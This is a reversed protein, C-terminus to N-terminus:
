GGWAIASRCQWVLESGQEDPAEPMFRRGSTTLFASQRREFWEWSRISRRSWEPTSRISTGAPAPWSRWIPWNPSAAPSATPLSTCVTWRRVTSCRRAGAPRPWAAHQRVGGHREAGVAGPRDALRGTGAAIRGAAGHGRQPRGVRDDVVDRAFSRLPGSPHRAAVSSPRGSRRRGAARRGGMASLPVRVAPRRDGALARRGVGDARSQTGVPLGAALADRDARRGAPQIEGGPSLPCARSCARPCWRRREPFRTDRKRRRLQQAFVELLLSKGSGSPGVLLGLRRHQGVLFSLRALAEEHTPSQYFSKPDLDGRFPSEQLGWHAQYM